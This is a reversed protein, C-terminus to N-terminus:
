QSRGKIDNCNQSITTHKHQAQATMRITRKSPEVEVRGILRDKRLVGGPRAASGHYTDEDDNNRMMGTTMVSADDSLHSAVDDNELNISDLRTVRGTRDDGGGAPASVRFSM